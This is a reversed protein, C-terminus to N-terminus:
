WWGGSDGGDDTASFAFVTAESGDEWSLTTFDIQVATNEGLATSDGAVTATNGDLKVDQDFDIYVEQDKFIDIKIDFTQEHDVDTDVYKEIDVKIDTDDNKYWGM